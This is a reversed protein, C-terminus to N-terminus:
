LEIWPNKNEIECGSQKKYYREMRKSRGSNKWSRTLSHCNPCLTILNEPTSNEHNEDRHHVELPSKGTFPNIENWGCRTCKNGDREKIFDKVFKKLQGDPSNSEIEGNLWNKINDNHKEVM